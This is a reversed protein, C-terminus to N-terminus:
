HITSLVRDHEIVTPCEVWVHEKGEVCSDKFPCAKWKEDTCFVRAVELLEWDYKSPYTTDPVELNFIGVKM